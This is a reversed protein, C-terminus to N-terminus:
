MTMAARAHFELGPERHHQVAFGVPAVPDGHFEAAEGGLDDEDGGHDDVAGAADGDGIM